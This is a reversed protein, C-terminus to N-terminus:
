KIHDILPREAEHRNGEPDQRHRGDQGRGPEADEEVAPPMSIVPVPAAAAIAVPQFLAGPRLVQVTFGGIRFDAETRGAFIQVGVPQFLRLKGGGEPLHVNEEVLGPGVRLAGLDQEVAAKALDLQINRPLPLDDVMDLGAEPRDFDIGARGRQIRRRGQQREGPVDRQSVHIDM